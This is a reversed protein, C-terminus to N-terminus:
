PRRLPVTKATYLYRKVKRTTTKEFEENRLVFKRIRKFRALEKNVKRVEQSVIKNIKDEDYASPGFEKDFTETNAVIIAQVETKSPDEDPGGWVLSELVFPSQSLLYEIEEPYVNKGNPTVIVSKKRGSIHLFGDKDFFGLDGTHLWGDLITEETAAENRFYGKMVGPGRVLIEDDVIEVETEPLPVGVSGDKCHDVRNVSIIPSTETLGYGQIFDIGLQRFGKSVAPNIAAGGSILLRLRGGVKEHIQGFIKRRIKLRFLTESISCIGKALKFKGQGKERIGAEIRRYIAEFLAPVGLMVTARTERLNDAIRRLSEAHCITAGQYMAILFGATCEYTHHLPLVSLVIDSQHISVHYSTGVVNSAINQHTLVVGKSTGTTGSTFLIVATDDPAVTAGSYSRNGAVLAGSGRHLAESFSLDAGDRDAEMSVIFQLEPLAARDEKLPKVYEEAALLVKTQSLSLIHRIERERLDRDIPVGVFGSTVVALYSIAWEIRNEGIIGVRDGKEIGLEFLATALKETQERVQVFSLGQFTGDKKSKISMRDQYRDEAKFLLDRVTEIPYIPFNPQLQSM